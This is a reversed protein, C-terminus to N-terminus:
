GNSGSVPQARYERAFEMWEPTNVSCSVLKQLLKLQM